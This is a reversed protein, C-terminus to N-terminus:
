HIIRAITEGLTKTEYPKGLFAQPMESHQGAMVQEESYGSALIVPINPVLNRLATLTDWGNMQPMTLDCLVCIIEAQHQRFVEIGQVGDEAELVMFGLHQLTIVALHRVIDTDEIVLITGAKPRTTTTDAVPVPKAPNPETQLPFFAHVITGRGLESEVTIFGHHVRMIGLAEPLGMGRGTFKNSFFPDFLNQFDATAIGCGTDAVSLCAYAKEHPQSDVPVRNRMPIDSASITKVTLRVVGRGDGNAEWANAILNALLQQLLKANAHIAPGPIPLNSELRVDRPIDAQLSPLSRQCFESLDLRERLCHIKGIYTLLKGSMVAIIRASQMAATLNKFPETHRPLDHIALDINGMIAHLQNNFHHAIAGAMRGLSEVKRLRLNQAALTQREAEARKDATVDLFSWVRGINQGDVIMPLSFREFIRGDKLSVTDADEADSGYLDAVKKLFAEPAALQDSVFRLLHHDEGRDMITEPIRWIKAFRRNAHLVKGHHDVALVGEATSELTTHLLMERKRISTAMRTRIIAEGVHAALGEFEEVMALSFCGKRRDNFQILGTIGDKDRIPVLAVSAYGQHICINRPHRLPNQGPPLNLWQFSDNTWCSGGRTFLPNAPDTQGSIVLGCACELSAKGDKDRCIAGNAAHEILTNETQLFDKPFGVQAIYPFDEGEKLRLGVADLGTRVKVTALVRQLIDQTTEPENLIRMIEAGMDRYTEAQKRATIDRFFAVIRGDKIPQYQASVEVTFTGGDKRRHLSEFRTEGQSTIKLIWATTTDHTEAADLDSIHMALLEPASYGSMRCYADNVELLRGQMDVLWFGDRATQLINRHLEESERLAAHAQNKRQETAHLRWYLRVQRQRYIWIIAIAMLLINLVLFGVGILVSRAMEPLTTANRTAEISYFICGIAALGFAVVALFVVRVWGAWYVSRQDTRM